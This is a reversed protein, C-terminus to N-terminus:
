DEDFVEPHAALYDDVFRDLKDQEEQDIQVIKIGFGTKDRMHAVKGLFSVRRESATGPTGELLLTVEVMSQVSFPNSGSSVVYVGGKSINGTRFQYPRSGAMSRVNIDAAIEVRYRKALRKDKLHKLISSM